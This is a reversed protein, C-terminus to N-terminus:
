KGREARRVFLDEYTLYPLKGEKLCNEILRSQPMVKLKWRKEQMKQKAKILKKLNKSNFTGKNDSEVSRGKRRQCNRGLM